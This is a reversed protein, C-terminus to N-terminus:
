ALHLCDFASAFLAWFVSCFSIVESRSVFLVICSLIRSISTAFSSNSFCARCVVDERSSRSDFYLTAMSRPTMNSSSTLIPSRSRSVRRISVWLSRSSSDSRLTSASIICSLSRRASATESRRCKRLSEGMLGAIELGREEIDSSEGSVVADDGVMAVGGVLDVEEAAESVGVGGEGGVESLDKGLTVVAGAEDNGFDLSDIVLDVIVDRGLWRDM